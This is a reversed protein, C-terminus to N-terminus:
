CKKVFPVSGKGTLLLLLYHASSPRGSHHQSTANRLLLRPSAPAGPRSPMLTVFAATWMKAAAIPM